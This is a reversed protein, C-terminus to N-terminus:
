QFIERDIIVYYTSKLKVKKVEIEDIPLQDNVLYNWILNMWFDCGIQRAFIDFNEISPTVLTEQIFTKHQRSKKSSALKSLVNERDNNERFIHKLEYEDFCNLLHM